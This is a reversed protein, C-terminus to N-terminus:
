SPARHHLGLARARKGMATDYSVLGVTKAEHQLLWALDLYAADYATLGDQRFSLTGPLERVVQMADEWLRRAKAPRLRERQLISALEYRALSPAWLRARDQLAQTVFQHLADSEAERRVLKGLASADLVWDTAM